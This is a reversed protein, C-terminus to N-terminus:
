AKKISVSSVMDDWGGPMSSYQGETLTTSKGKFNTGSFLVAKFGPSVKASSAQKRDVKSLNMSAYGTFPMPRGGFAADHYLMLSTQSSSGLSELAYSQNERKHEDRLCKEMPGGRKGLCDRRKGGKVDKCVAFVGEHKKAMKDCNKRIKDKSSKSGDVDQKDNRKVRCQRKDPNQCGTDEWGTPCRWDNVTEGYKKRTRYKYTTTDHPMCTGSSTSQISKDSSGGCKSDIEWPGASEHGATGAKNKRICKRPDDQKLTYSADYKSGNPSVCVCSSPDVKPQVGGYVEISDVDDNVGISKLNSVDETKDSHFDAQGGKRFLKVGLGPPIKISSYSNIEYEHFDHKGIGFDRSFQTYGADQFFRVKDTPMPTQSTDNNKRWEHAKEQFTKNDDGLRGRDVKKFEDSLTLPDNIDSYSDCRLSGVMTVIVLVVVFALILKTYQM